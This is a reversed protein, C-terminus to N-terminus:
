NFFKIKNKILIGKKLEVPRWEDRVLSANLWNALIEPNGITASLAIIQIDKIKQRLSTIVIELVPGRNLDNLLHVEDIVLTKIYNIWLPKHRILSDLKEYTCIILDYNELYYEPNDKDGISLAINILGNYKKKFDKYKELALAKLPVLYIGKGKNEMINKILAIEGILTKGSATPTCILLNNSDLLGKNIAKEQSPRFQKINNKLINYLDLPLKNKISELDM